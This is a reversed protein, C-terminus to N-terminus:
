LQNTESSPLAKLADLPMEYFPTEDPEDTVAIGSAICGYTPGYYRHVVRGAPVTEALWHCEAKTVDRVVVFRDM